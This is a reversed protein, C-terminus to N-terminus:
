YFRALSRRPQKLENSLHSDIDSLTQALRPFFVWVTSAGFLAGTTVRLLWDSERMGLMQSLGDIIMPAIALMYLKIPMPGVLRSVRHYIISSVFLGFYIGIERQCVAVQHGLVFFSREQQQHCAVSFGVFITHALEDYGIAALVPTLLPMLAFIGFVVTLSGLFLGLGRRTINAALTLMM